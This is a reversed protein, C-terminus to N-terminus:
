AVAHFTQSSQLAIDQTSALVPHGTQFHEVVLDIAALIELLSQLKAQDLTQQQQIVQDLYHQANQLAHQAQPADLFLAAGSLEKFMDPLYQLNVQEPQKAYDLVTDCCREILLKTESLLLQHAEDLRDLSINMNNVDLQLRASTFNRKLIGISNMASLLSNMLRQAFRPNQQMNDPNLHDAQYRFELYAENLNMVKFINALELLKNRLLQMREEPMNQYNFEIDNRIQNIEDSILQCVTEITNQDPGFLHRSYIQLQLDTLVQDSIQLQQRISDSLANEQSICLTLIDTTTGAEAQFQQPQQLFATIQRELHILVRLRADSLILDEMLEFAINVLQWFTQSPTAEAHQALYAGIFRIAAFDQETESQQILNHLCLRYLQPIYQTHEIAVAPSQQLQLQALADPEILGTSASTLPLHLAMELQNLTDLLFQPVHIERLCIFEIYRKLVTTSESLATVQKLNLQEPRAIVQHMIQVSYRVMKSLQPLEIFDLVKATQEFQQLADDIGFPLSQEEILEDVTSEVQQLIHIIENKIILLSTPDFHISTQSSM